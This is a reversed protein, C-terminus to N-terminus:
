NHPQNSSCEPFSDWALRGTSGLERMGQHSSWYADAMWEKVIGFEANLPDDSQSAATLIEDQQASNLQRFQQRRHLQMAKSDFAALAQVLERRNKESDIALIADILRNCLAEKSGPIVREGLTILTENQEASLFRPNWSMAATEGSPAAAHTDHQAAAAPM